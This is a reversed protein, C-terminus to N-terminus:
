MDRIVASTDHNKGTREYALGAQKSDELRNYWIAPELRSHKNINTACVRSREGRRGKGPAPRQLTPSRLRYSRLQTRRGSVAPRIDATVGEAQTLGPGIRANCPLPTSTYHHKPGNLVPHPVCRTTGRVVGLPLTERPFILTAIWKQFPFVIEQDGLGNSFHLRTGSM